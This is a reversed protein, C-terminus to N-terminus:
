SAAPTAPKAISAAPTPTQTPGPQPTTTGIPIILQQGVRLRNSELGNVAMIAAVSTNYALAINYLNDGAKVVYILPTPVGSPPHTPTRTPAPTPTDTAASTPSPTPSASPTSTPTNAQTATPRPTPTDTATPTVSPPLTPLATVTPVSSPSPTATRTAARTATPRPTLTDTASPTPSPVLTPMGTPPVTLSPLPTSTPTGTPVPTISPMAGESQSLVATPIASTPEVPVAVDSGTDPATIGAALSQIRDSGDGALFVASLVLAAISAATLVILLPRVWARQLPAGCTRCDKQGSHNTTGCIRCRIQRPQRRLKGCQPCIRLEPLVQAGCNECVASPRKDHLYGSEQMGTSSTGSDGAM